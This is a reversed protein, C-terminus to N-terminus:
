DIYPLTLEEISWVGCNFLLWCDNCIAGLLDDETSYSGKGGLLLLSLVKNRSSVTSSSTSISRMM